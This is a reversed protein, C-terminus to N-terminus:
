TGAGRVKELFIIGIQPSYAEEGVVTYGLSLYLKLNGASKAGTFLHFRSVDPFCGEIEHMLRSALGHRRHDPHVMLRGIYCDGATQRGRVSGIISGELCGKLITMDEFEALLDDLSQTMPPLQWDDYLRAEVQYALRQLALIEEADAPDARVIHEGTDM